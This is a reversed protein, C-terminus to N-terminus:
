NQASHKRRYFEVAKWLSFIENRNLMRTGNPQGVNHLRIQEAMEVSNEALVKVLQNWSINTVKDIPLPLVKKKTEYWKVEIKYKDQTPM